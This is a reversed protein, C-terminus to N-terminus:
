LYIMSNTTLPVISYDSPIGLKRTLSQRVITIYERIVIKLQANHDAVNGIM